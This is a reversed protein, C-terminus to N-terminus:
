SCKIGNYIAAIGLTLNRFTTSIFGAERLLILFEDRQPFEAASESLYKYEKKSGFVSGFAPMVYNFYFLFLPKFIVSEPTTFELISLKGDPKLVREIEELSKKLNSTNRIGFAITIADFTDNIFPLQENIGQIILINDINKIKSSGVSLMNISPDLGIISSRPNRKIIALPVKATGTAIDLILDSNKVEESLGSRWYSDIGFSFLTNLLDYHGSIKNFINKTEPM